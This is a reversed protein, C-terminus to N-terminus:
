DDFIDFTRKRQRPKGGENEWRHIADREDRSHLRVPVPRPQRARHKGDRDGAFDAMDELFNTILDKLVSM